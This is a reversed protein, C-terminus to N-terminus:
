GELEWFFFHAVGFFQQESIYLRTRVSPRFAGFEAPRFWVDCSSRWLIEGTCDQVTRQGEEEVFTGV